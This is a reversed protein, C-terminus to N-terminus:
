RGLQALANRLSASSIQLMGEFPRDLELILFIASSVALACVFLTFVVTANPPAYLGFSTLILTLWAVLVVLFPMAISRGKQAFLLWRTQAVDTGTKLALAQLARQGDNKPTLEQIKEYLGEYLGESGGKPIAQGSQSSENPWTRDLMDAVMTRLM